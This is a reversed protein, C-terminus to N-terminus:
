LTALSGVKAAKVVSVLNIFSEIPRHLEIAGLEPCRTIQSSIKRLSLHVPDDHGEVFGRGLFLAIRDALDHGM